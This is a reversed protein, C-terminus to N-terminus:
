PRCQCFVYLDAVRCYYRAVSGGCQMYCASKAESCPVTVSVAAAAAAAVSRTGTVLFLLFVALLKAATPLEEGKM